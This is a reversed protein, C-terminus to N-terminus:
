TNFVLDTFDCREAICCHIANRYTIKHSFSMNQIFINNLVLYIM